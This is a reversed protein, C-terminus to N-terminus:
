SVWLLDSWLQADIQMLKALKDPNPQVNADFHKVQGTNNDVFRVMSMHISTSRDPTTFTVRNGQQEHCHFLTSSVLTWIVPSNASGQGTGYIPFIKCHSYFEDLVGLLTKLKYKAERLTQAHVFIINRHLVNARGLISAIATIIRDYCSTANNDFNLLSKHSAIASTTKLNKWSYQHQQRTDQAHETNDRTFPTRIHQM